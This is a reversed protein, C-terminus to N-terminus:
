DEYIITFTERGNPDGIGTITCFDCASDKAFAVKKSICKTCFFDENKMVINTEIFYDSDTALPTQDLDIYFGNPDNLQESVPINITYVNDLEDKISFVSGKAGTQTNIDEFGVPVSSKGNFFLRLGNRGISSDTVRKVDFDIIIKDCSLSFYSDMMVKVASRLDRVTSWLHEISEGITTAPTNWLQEYKNSLKTIDKVGDKGTINEGIIGKALQETKGLIRKYSCFEQEFLEVFETLEKQLPNEPSSGPVVCVSNVTSDKRLLNIQTNIGNIQRDFETKTVYTLKISKLKACFYSSTFRVYETLPLSTIVQGDSDRIFDGNDERFCETNVVINTEGTDSTIPKIAKEIEAFKDIMLSLISKIDKKPEPCATCAEYIDTLDLDTLDLGEKIKSLQFLTKGIVTGITDGDEISILPLKGDGWLVCKSSTQVCDSSINSKYPTM